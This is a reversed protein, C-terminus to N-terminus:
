IFEMAMTFIIKGSVLTFTVMIIIFSEQAMNLIKESPDKTSIHIKSSRYEKVMDSNPIDSTLSSKNGIAV